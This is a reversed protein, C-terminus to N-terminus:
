LIYCHGDPQIYHEDDEHILTIFCPKNEFNLKGDKTTNMKRTGQHNDAM